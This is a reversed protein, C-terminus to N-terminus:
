YSRIHHLTTGPGGGGEWGGGPGRRQRFTNVLFDRKSGAYLMTYWLAQKSLTTRNDETAYSIAEGRHLVKLLYKM